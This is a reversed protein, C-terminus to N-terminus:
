AAQIQASGEMPRLHCEAYNCVPRFFLKSEKFWDSSDDGRLQHMEPRINRSGAATQQHPLGAQVHGATDM